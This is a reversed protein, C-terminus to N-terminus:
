RASVAKPGLRQLVLEVFRQLKPSRFRDPLYVIQAQRAPPAYGPLVRRLTGRALDDALLLQSQMIIGAGSLAAQRLAEGNNVHLRSRIRVLHEGDRGILRWREPHDLYMFSLCTHDDRALDAPKKPTGHRKLYDPSAALLMQLPALARAILGSSAMPGSRLAVDYGEELLDVVRDQLTLEIQLEPHEAALVGLLPAVAHAGFVVPATVRLTGRAVGQLDSASSEAAEFDALLTKARQLYVRGVETLSHRRTTRRLVQAGLREEVHQIHKAVMSPSLHLEKAAAAFSGLEAVRVFVQM